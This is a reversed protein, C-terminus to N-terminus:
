LQQQAGGGDIIGLGSLRLGVGGSLALLALGLLLGLAEEEGATAPMGEPPAAAVAVAAGETLTIKQMVPMGSVVVPVDPGNPFEYVGAEGADLHLMAWIIAGAEVEESLTIAIKINTGAEIPAYGLNSNLEISGDAGSAHIVIWGNRTLLAREIVIQGNVPAQDQVRLSGATVNQAAAPLSVLLLLLGLVGAFGLGWYRRLGGIMAM